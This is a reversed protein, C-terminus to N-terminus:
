LMQESSRQCGVVVDQHNSKLGTFLVLRESLCRSRSDAGCGLASRLM